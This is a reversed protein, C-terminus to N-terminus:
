KEMIKTKKFGTIIHGDKIVMEINDKDQLVKIDQIPDKRLVVLDALLGEKIDGACDGMGVNEAALKTASLLALKNSLGARTLAEMEYAVGGHPVYPMGADSGTSIKVGISSARQVEDYMISRLNDLWAQSMSSRGPVKAPSRFEPSLTPTLYTGKAAMKEFQKDTYFRGHELSDIGAEIANDVAEGGHSHGVVKRMNLHAFDCIAHLMAETMEPAYTKNFHRVPESYSVNIKIVDSGDLICQRVAKVAEEPTDAIVGMNAISDYPINNRIYRSGDMHGATTTIAHGGAIIRSGIFLGANIVDRACIDAFDRSGVDRVTTVGNLLSKQANELAQLSLDGPQTTVPDLAWSEDPRGQHSLHVHTDILGPIVISNRFKAIVSGSNPEWDLDNYVITQIRENEIEIWVDKKVEGDIFAKGTYFWKSM